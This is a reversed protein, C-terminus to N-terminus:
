QAEVYQIGNMFSEFSLISIKVKNNIINNFDWVM